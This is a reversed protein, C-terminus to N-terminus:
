MGLVANFVGPTILAEILAAIILGPIVIGIFIKLSDGFATTWAQGVTWGAPPRTIVSGLRFAVATAIIITAIEIIAHPLVAALVYVPSYGSLVFQATVYGLILYVTPTLILAAVGFTFISLILAALLIRFNQSFIAEVAQQGFFFEVSSGVGGMALASPGLSM